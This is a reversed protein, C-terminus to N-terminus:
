ARDEDTFIPDGVPVALAVIKGDIQIPQAKRHASEPIQQGMTYSEAPKFVRGLTDLQLFCIVRSRSPPAKHIEPLTRQPDGTGLIHKFARDEISQLFDWM